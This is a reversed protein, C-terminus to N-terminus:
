AVPQVVMTRIGALASSPNQRKEVAFQCDGLAEQGTFVPAREKPTFRGHHSASREDGDIVSTLIGPAMGGSETYTKVAHHKTLCLSLRVNVKAKNQLQTNGM